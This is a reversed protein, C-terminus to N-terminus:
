EQSQHSPAKLSGADFLLTSNHLVFNQFDKMELVLFHILHKGAFFGTWELPFKLSIVQFMVSIKLAPIASLLSKSPKKLVNLTPQFELEICSFVM